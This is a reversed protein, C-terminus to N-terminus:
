CSHRQCKQNYQSHSKKDFPGPIKIEHLNPEDYLTGRLGQKRAGAMHFSYVRRLRKLASDSVRSSEADSGDSWSGSGMILMHRVGDLGVPLGAASRAVGEVPV